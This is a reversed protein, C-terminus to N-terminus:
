RRGEAQAAAWEDDSWKKNAEELKKMDPEIPKGRRLLEVQFARIWADAGRRSYTVDGFDCIYCREDFSVHCQHPPQTTIERRLYVICNYIHNLEMRELHIERGDAARWVREEVSM